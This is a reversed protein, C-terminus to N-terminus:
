YSLASLICDKCELDKFRFCGKNFFYRLRILLIDNNKLMVYNIEHDETTVCLRIPFTVDANKDCYVIGQEDFSRVAFEIGKYKLTCLYTSRGTMKEIFTNNDNLYVNQASYALYSQDVFAANFASETNAKSASENYGVELIYGHGKLFKTQNNLRSSIGMATFYPNIISVSNSMMFVPLYKVQKGHGRALSTHVSRFKIIEDTCYHNTESQFEDMICRVADSFLHSYNKLINADNLAICYGCSEKLEPQGNPFVYLERFKGKVLPESTMSLTPFFLGRIDKFFRDEISNMEYSFRVLIIFKEKNKMYRNFVYRNFYTTKGANRNSTVMYIEPQRGDLDKMSLLKTGDYFKVDDTM